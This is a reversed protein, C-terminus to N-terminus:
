RNENVYKKVRDQIIGIADDLSKNGKFYDNVAITVMTIIESNDTKIKGKKILNYLTQVEDETLPAAEARFDEYGGAEGKNPTVVMGEENVYPETASNKKIIKEFGKKGSPLYAASNSQTTIIYKIFDWAGEKNESVSTMALSGDKPNIYTSRGDESPYGIYAVDNDFLKKNFQIFTDIDYTCLDDNILMTGNKVKDYAESWSMDIDAEDPFENCFEAMKRFKESDFSVQGTNWDIYSDIDYGIFKKFINEKSEYMKLMTGAPKSHYYELFEGYSFGDKYKKVDSAKAAITELNFGSILYYIKDDIKSADLLGDVFYDENLVDDKKLYPTLDEMLGKNIYKRIDISSIGLVDPINGSIIDQAFDSIPNESKAYSTYEVRYKDSTMNYDAIQSEFDYARLGGSDVSACKIVQKKPANEDAKKIFGVINDTNSETKCICFYRGDDMPTMSKVFEGVLGTDLWNFVPKLEDTKENYQYLKELEKVFFTADGSGDILSSYIGNGFDYKEDENGPNVIPVLEERSIEGKDFDLHRYCIGEDNLEYDIINGNNDIIMNSFCLDEDPVSGAISGDSNLKYIYGNEGGTEAYLTGDGLFITNIGQNDNKGYIIDTLNVDSICEGTMTYTVLSCKDDSDSYSYVMRLQNENDVHFGTVYIGDKLDFLETDEGTEINLKCLKTIYRDHNEKYEDPYYPTINLIYYLENGNLAVGAQSEINARLIGYEYASAYKSVDAKLPIKEFVYEDSVYEGKKSCATMGITFAATMVMLVFLYFYKRM